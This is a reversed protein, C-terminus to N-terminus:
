DWLDKTLASGAKLGAAAGAPGGYIGGLAAAGGIVTADIGTQWWKRKKKRRSCIMNM